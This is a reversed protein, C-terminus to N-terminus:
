KEQGSGEDLWPTLGKEDEAFHDARMTFGTSFTEPLVLLDTNEMRDVLMADLMDLNQAVDEWLIDPQVLTISIHDKM